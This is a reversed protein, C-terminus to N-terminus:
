WTHTWGLLAALRANHPAFHDALTARLQQSMDRPRTSSAHRDWATPTFDRLGLFALVGSYIPDPDAFLDESRIIHFRERSVHRFWRELQDAYYGRSLYSFQRLADQSRASGSALSSAGSLRETEANLAEAFGLPEYGRRKTHLYHSYARDVPNRLLVLFRANPLSSAVRAPVAPHFLYYPSAEFHLRGPAAAPFHARYWRDGRAHHLTFYQLEKGTAQDVDPHEALYHHLSTTGCRMGGLILFDPYAGVSGPTAVRAWARLGRVEERLM